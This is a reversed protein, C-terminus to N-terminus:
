TSPAGSEGLARAVAEVVHQDDDLSNVDLDDVQCFYEIAGRLEARQGANYQASRSLLERLTHGIRQAQERFRGDVASALLEEHGDIRPLMDLLDEASTEVALARHADRLSGELYAEASGAVQLTPVDVQKGSVAEASWIQDAVSALWAQRREIADLDWRPEKALLQNLEVESARYELRKRQFPGNSIAINIKYYLLTLNGWLNVYSGHEDVRDGLVSRWDASLTQPMVHEIHVLDNPKWAKEVSSPKLLHEEIRQLTYRLVYQTGMRQRQFAERFQESSPMMDVILACAAEYDAGKSDELLKAAKHYTRELDKADQTAITSYRYTLVEALRAFRVFETSSLWRRAPMLAIYCQTARLTALDLLVARVDDETVRPPDVFEGYVQGYIRLRGLLKEPGVEGVEDKFRDFVQDKRVSPKGILLYHRLFRTIDAKVGADNILQDWEDAADLVAEQSQQTKAIRALLHSKLLDGASLQLGRDNLTEFLLFADSVTGVKIAVFELREVLTVELRELQDLRDKGEHGDLWETLREGLRQANDFLARNRARVDKALTGRQAMELRDPDDPARLVFDRLVKWNADGSRFKWLAEGQAFRDSVMFDQPRTKIHADLTYYEDRILALLLLLTTLRQQGDIVQPRAPEETNLVISGLFHGGGLTGIVDDWLEDVQEAGWAYPRQYPPVVFQEGRVGFLRNLTMREASLQM